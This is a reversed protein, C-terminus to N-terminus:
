ENSKGLDQCLAFYFNSLGVFRWEDLIEESFDCITGDDNYWEIDKLPIANIENIRQHLNLIESLLIKTKM